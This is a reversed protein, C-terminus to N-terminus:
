KQTILGEDKNKTTMTSILLEQLGPGAIAFIFFLNIKM